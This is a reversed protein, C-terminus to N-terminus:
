GQDVIAQVEETLTDGGLAKWQSVFEDFYDVPKEGVIIQLYMEDELKDLAAKLTTSSETEFYYAPYVPNGEETVNGGVYRTWYAWFSAEDKDGDAFKKASICQNKDYDTM